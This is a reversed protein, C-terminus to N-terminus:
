EPQELGGEEHITPPIEENVEGEAEGNGEGILLPTPHPEQTNDDESEAVSHSLNEEQSLSQQM